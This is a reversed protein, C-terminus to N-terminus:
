SNLRWKNNNYLKLELVIYPLRCTEKPTGWDQSGIYCAVLAKKAENGILLTLDQKLKVYRM